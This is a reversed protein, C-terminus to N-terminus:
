PGIIGKHSTPVLETHKKRRGGLGVGRSTHLVNDPPTQLRYPTFTYRYTWPTALDRYGRPAKRVLDRSSCGWGWTQQDKTVQLFLRARARTQYSGSAGGSNAKIGIEAKDKREAEFYM